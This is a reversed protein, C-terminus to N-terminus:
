ELGRMHANMTLLVNRGRQNESGDLFTEQEPEEADAATVEEPNRTRKENALHTIRGPGSEIM